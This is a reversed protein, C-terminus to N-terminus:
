AEDLKEKEAGYLLKRAEDVIDPLQYYNTNKIRISKIVGGDLWGKLKGRLTRISEMFEKDLCGDIINIEGEKDTRLPIVEEPHDKLFVILKELTLITKLSEIKM